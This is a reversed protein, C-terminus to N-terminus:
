IDGLIFYKYALIFLGCGGAAVMWNLLGYKMRISKDEMLALIEQRSYARLLYSLWLQGIFFGIVLGAIGILYIM